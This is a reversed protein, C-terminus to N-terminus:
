GTHVRYLTLQRLEAIGEEVLEFAHESWDEYQIHLSLEIKAIAGAITTAHMKRIETARDELLLCCNYHERDKARWALAEPLSSRRVKSCSIGLERAKDFVLGQLDDAEASLADTRARLSIWDAALEVLPDSTTSHRDTLTPAAHTTGSASLAMGGAIIARRSLKAM